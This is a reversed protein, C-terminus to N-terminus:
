LCNPALKSGFYDGGKVLDRVRIWLVCKRESMVHRASGQDEKSQGDLMRRQFLLVVDRDHRSQVRQVDVAALRPDAALLDPGDRM